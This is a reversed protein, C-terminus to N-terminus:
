AHIYIIYYLVYFHIAVNNKYVYNSYNSNNFNDVCGGQIAYYTLLSNVSYYFLRRIDM